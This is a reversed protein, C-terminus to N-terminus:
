SGWGLKGAMGLGCLGAGLQGALPTNLCTSIIIHWHSTTTKTNHLLLSSVCSILPPFYSEALFPIFQTSRKQLCPKHTMTQWHSFNVQFKSPPFPSTAMVRSFDHPDYMVAEESVAIEHVEKCVRVKCIHHSWLYSWSSMIKKWKPHSSTHLEKYKGMFDQNEWEHWHILSFCMTVTEGTRQSCGELGERGWTKGCRHM